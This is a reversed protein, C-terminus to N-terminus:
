QYYSVCHSLHEHFLWDAPRRPRTPVLGAEYESSCRNFDLGSSQSGESWAFLHHYGITSVMFDPSVRKMLGYKSNTIWYHGVIRRLYVMFLSTAISAVTLGRFSIGHIWGEMYGPVTISEEGGMRNVHINVFVVSVAASLLLFTEVAISKSSNL